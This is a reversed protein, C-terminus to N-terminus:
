CGKYNAAVCERALRQAEGIQEPTMKNAVKDRLGAADEAGLSSAINAWMHAKVFDQIVGDGDRYM